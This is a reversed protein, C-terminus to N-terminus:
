LATVRPHITLLGVGAEMQAVAIDLLREPEIFPGDREVTYVPLTAAALGSDVIHRWLSNTSPVISLDSIIDPGDEMSILATIKEVQKALDRASSMGVLAMVLTPCAHGARIPGRGSNITVSMAQFNHARV